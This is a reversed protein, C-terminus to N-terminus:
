HSFLHLEDIKKGEGKVKDARSKADGLAKAFKKQMTKEDLLEGSGSELAGINHDLVQSKIFFNSMAISRKDKHLDKLLSQIFEKKETKLRELQAQKGEKLEEPSLPQPETSSLPPTATTQTKTSGPHLVM